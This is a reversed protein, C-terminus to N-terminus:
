GARSRRARASPAHHARKKKRGLKAGSKQRNASRRTSKRSPRELASDELTATARRARLRVNRAATSGGGAKRDTASVGPLSTDVWSDRREPKEAARLLNARSRGVRRGIFSGGAPRRAPPKRVPAAPRKIPTRKAARGLRDMARALATHAATSARQLARRADVDRAEAVIHALGSVSLKIKCITDVGGRPGNIDEFRVTARTIDGGFRALKRGLRDRIRQKEPADLHSGAVHIRLPTASIATAGARRKKSRPIHRAFGKREPTLSRRKTRRGAPTKQQHTDEDRLQTAMFTRRLLAQASM